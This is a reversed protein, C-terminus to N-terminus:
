YLGVLYTLRLNNNHLVSVKLLVLNYYLIITSPSIISFTPYNIYMHRNPNPDIAGLTKEHSALLTRQICVWSSARLITLHQVVFLVVVFLCSLSSTNM